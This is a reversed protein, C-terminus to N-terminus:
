PNPSIVEHLQNEDREHKGWDGLLGVLDVEWTPL